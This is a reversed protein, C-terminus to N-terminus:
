SMYVFDVAEGYNKNLKSLYIFDHNGSLFNFFRVIREQFRLFTLTTKEFTSFYRFTTRRKLPQIEGITM